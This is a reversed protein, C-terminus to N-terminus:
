WEQSWGAQMKNTTKAEVPVFCLNKIQLPLGAV